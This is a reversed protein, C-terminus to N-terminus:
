SRKESLDPAWAAKLFTVAQLFLEIDSLERIWEEDIKLLEKMAETLREYVEEVIKRTPKEGLNVILNLIRVALRHMEKESLEYDYAYISLEHKIVRLGEVAEHISWQIKM